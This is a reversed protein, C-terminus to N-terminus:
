HPQCCHSRDIALNEPKIRAINDAQGDIVVDYRGKEEVFTKVRAEKGNLHSAAKLDQCTVLMGEPLIIQSPSVKFKEQEGNEKGHSIIYKQGDKTARLVAVQEGHLRHGKMNITVMSALFRLQLQREELNKTTKHDPGLSRKADGITRTMIGLAESNKGDKILADAVFFASGLTFEHDDGWIEKNKAYQERAAQVESVPDLDNGSAEGMMVDITSLLHEAGPMHQFIRRSRQLLELRQKNEGLSELVTALGFTAEAEFGMANPVRGPNSRLVRLVEEQLTKAGVEDGNSDRAFALTLASAINRYDTEAYERTTKYYGEALLLQMRERFSAKCNPCDYWVRRSPDLQGRAYLDASKQALYNSLCAVHCHGSDGRCACGGKVLPEGADNPGEELCIWCSAM